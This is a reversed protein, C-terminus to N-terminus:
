SLLKARKFVIQQAQTACDMILPDHYYDMIARHAQIYGEEGEFGHKAMVSMHLPFLITLLEQRRALMSADVTVKTMVHDVQQLFADSTMAAAIDQILSRAEELSIKRVKKLGFAKEFLFRWKRENIERLPPHEVASQMFQQNFMALGSQDGAFGFTKIVDIQIPLLVELFKQWRNMIPMELSRIMELQSEQLQLSRFMLEQAELLQELSLTITM